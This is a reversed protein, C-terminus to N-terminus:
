AAPCVPRWWSSGLLLKVQIRSPSLLQCDIM